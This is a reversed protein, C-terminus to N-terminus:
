GTETSQKKEFWDEDRGNEKRFLRVQDELRKEEERIEEFNCSLRDCIQCFLEKEEQSLCDTFDRTIHEREKQRFELTEQGEKTLYLRVVRADRKDRIRRINGDAELKDLKQTLSSPRIDLIKALENARIGENQAIIRLTKGQGRGQGDPNSNTSYRKINRGLRQIADLVQNKKGM